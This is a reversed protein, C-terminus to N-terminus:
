AGRGWFSRALAILDEVAGEGIIEVRVEDGERGKLELVTKRPEHREVLGVGGLEVFETPEVVSRSSSEAGGEAIALKALRRADLRLARATEAVGNVRALEAASSWLETPIPRGRGGHLRRWSTLAERTTELDKGRNKDHRDM